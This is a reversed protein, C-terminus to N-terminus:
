KKIVEPHFGDKQFYGRKSWINLKKNKATEEIERFEQELSNNPKHIYRVAAYGNRLLEEQILVGDVFVYLLLRDYNDRSPGKDELAEIKKANQLLDKTFETAEAAFPQKGDKPHNMEPTDVMLLRVKEKSGNYLIQFTDGDYTNLYKIEKLESGTEKVAYETTVSLSEKDKSESKNDSQEGLFDIGLYTLVIIIIINFIIKLFKM